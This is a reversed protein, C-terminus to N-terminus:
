IRQEPGDGPQAQFVHPAAADIDPRLAFVVQTQDVIERFRCDVSHYSLSELGRRDDFRRWPVKLRPEVVTLAQASVNARGNRTRQCISEVTVRIRRVPAMEPTEGTEGILFLFM